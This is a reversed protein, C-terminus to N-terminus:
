SALGAVPRRLGVSSSRATAAGWVDGPIQLALSGRGSGPADSSRLPGGVLVGSQGVRSRAFKSSDRTGAVSATAAGFGREGHALSDLAVEAVVARVPGPHYTVRARGAPVEWQRWRV